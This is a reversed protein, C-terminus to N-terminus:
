NETPSAFDCAVLAYETIRVLKSGTYENFVMMVPVKKHEKGNATLPKETYYVYYPPGHREINPMISTYYCSVPYSISGDEESVVQEVGYDKLVPLDLTQMSNVQAMMTYNQLKNESFAQFLNTMYFNLTSGDALATARALHFMMENDCYTSKPISLTSEKADDKQTYIFSATHEGFYDATIKYSLNEANPRSALKVEKQMESTDLSNTQFLTHSVISDTLGRDKEPAAANYTVSFSMDVSSYGISDRTEINEALTYTLSGDAIPIRHADDNGATVDYITVEYDLKEYGVTEGEGRWPRETDFTVSIPSTNCACLALAATVSLGAVCKRIIGNKM